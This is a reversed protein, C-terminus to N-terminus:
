FMGKIEALAIMNALELGALGDLLFFNLILEDGCTPGLKLSESEQKQVHWRGDRLNVFGASQLTNRESKLAKGVSKHTLEDPFVVPIYYGFANTAIVYKM